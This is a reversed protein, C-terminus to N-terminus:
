SLFIGADSRALGLEQLSTTFSTHARLIVLRHRKWSSNIVLPTHISPNGKLDKLHLSPM